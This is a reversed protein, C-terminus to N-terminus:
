KDYLKAVSSSELFIIKISPYATYFEGFGNAVANVIKSGINGDRECHSLVDRLGIGTDLYLKVQNYGAFGTDFLAFM